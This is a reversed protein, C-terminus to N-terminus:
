FIEEKSNVIEIYKQFARKSEVMNHLKEYYVGLNYWAEAFREEAGIAKKMYAAARKYNGTMGFAMGVHFYVIKRRDKLKPSSKIYPIIKELESAAKAYNKNREKINSSEKYMLNMAYWYSYNISYPYKMRNEELLKLAEEYEKSKFKKEVLNFMRKEEVAPHMQTYIPIVFILLFFLSAIFKFVKM